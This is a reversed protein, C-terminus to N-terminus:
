FDLFDPPTDDPQIMEVGKPAMVRIWDAVQEIYPIFLSDQWWVDFNLNAFQGAMVCIAVLVVGRAFGFLLGFAKDTVSLLSLSVLKSLGWGLLSGAAIAIVFVIMRGFWMQLEPGKLWDESMGGVQAGFNLAAWIAVLLAAISVAEKVFGRMYGIGASALVIAAIVLDAITM